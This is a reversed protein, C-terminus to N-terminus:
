RDSGIGPWRTSVYRDPHDAYGERPLYTYGGQPAARGTPDAVRQGSTHVWPAPDKKGSM